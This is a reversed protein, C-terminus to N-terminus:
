KDYDIFDVLNNIRISQEPYSEDFKKSITDNKNEYSITLIINLENNDCWFHHEIGAAFFLIDYKNLKLKQTHDLIVNRDGSLIIMFTNIADFHSPYDWHGRSIRLSFKNINNLSEQIKIPFKYKNIYLWDLLYLTIKNQTNSLFFIRTQKNGNTININNKDKWDLLKIKIIETPYLSSKNDDTFNGLEIVEEGCEKYFNDLDFEPSINKWHKIKNKYTIIFLFLLLLLIILIINM